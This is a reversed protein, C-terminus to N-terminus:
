ATSAATQSPRRRLDHGIGFLCPILFLVYVTSTVMGGVSPAAIPQTIDLGSGTALMIPLVVAYVAMAQSDTGFSYESAAMRSGCSVLPVVLAAAVTVEYAWQRRHAYRASM